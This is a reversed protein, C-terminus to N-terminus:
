LFIAELSVIKCDEMFYKVLKRYHFWFWTLGSVSFVLLFFFFLLMFVRGMKHTFTASFLLRCESFFYYTFQEVNGEYIILFLVGYFSYKRIYKSIRYNFLLRFALSFIVYILLIGPLEYFFFEFNNAFFGIGNPNKTAFDPDTYNLQHDLVEVASDYVKNIKRCFEYDEDCNQLM